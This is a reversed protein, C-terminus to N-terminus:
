RLYRSCSFSGRSGHWHSLHPRLLDDPNHHAGMAYFGLSSTDSKVARIHRSPPFPVIPEASIAEGDPINDEHHEHAVVSAISLILSLTGLVAERSM